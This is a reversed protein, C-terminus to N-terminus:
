RFTTACLIGASGAVFHSYSDVTTPFVRWLAKAFGIQTDM